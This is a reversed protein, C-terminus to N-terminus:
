KPQQGNQIKNALLLFLQSNQTIKNNSLIKKKGKKWNQYKVHYYCLRKVLPPVPHIDQGKAFNPCFHELKPFFARSKDAIPQIDRKFHLKQSNGASLKERRTSEKVHQVNNKILNSQNWSFKKARFFEQNRAQLMENLRLEEQM